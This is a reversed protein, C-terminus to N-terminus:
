QIATTQLIKDQNRKCKNYMNEEEPTLIEKEVWSNSARKGGWSNFSRKGGWSSFSRKGGWSNFSKKGGWSNFSKKGEWSNSSRKGGWSNFSRKGGWPVFSGHKKHWRKPNRDFTSLVLVKSEGSLPSRKRGQANFNRKGGWSSFNRISVPIISRKRPLTKTGGENSELKLRKGGWPSFQRKNQHSRKKRGHGLDFNSIDDSPHPLQLTVVIKPDSDTGPTTNEYDEYVTLASSSVSHRSCSAAKLLSATIVVLAIGSASMM